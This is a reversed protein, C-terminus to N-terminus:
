PNIIKIKDVLWTWEVSNHTWGPTFEVNEMVTIGAKYFLVENDMIEKFIHQATLGKLNYDFARGYLHSSLTATGVPHLRFGRNQFKGGKHWDNITMSVGFWNRIFEAAEVARKDIFRISSAGFKTYLESPIWERIDFHASIKTEPM